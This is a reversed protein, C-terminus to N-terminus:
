LSKVYSMSEKVWRDELDMTREITRDFPPWLELIISPTLGESKMHDLIWPLSLDGQGAPRGEVSFGMLTESRRITVDKFHFNGCYRIMKGLFYEPGEMAGLANALDICMRFRPHGIREMLGAYEEAQFAETNELVMTVGRREFDPLVAAILEEVEKMVANSGFFAPLVRLIPSGLFGAIELMRLLHDRQIDKTGVEISIGRSVSFDRLEELQQETLNELPLNDAIQVLDAGHEVAKQLLELATMKKEPIPGKAVGVSWPYCWSSIGFKFM